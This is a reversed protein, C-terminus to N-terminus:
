LCANNQFVIMELSEYVTFKVCLMNLNCHNGLFSLFNNGKGSAMNIDICYKYIKLM